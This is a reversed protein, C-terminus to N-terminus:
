DTRLDQTKWLNFRELHAEHEVQLKDKEGGDLLSYLVQHTQVFEIYLHKWVDFEAQARSRDGEKIVELIANGSATLQTVHGGYVKRKMGAQYQALPYDNSYGGYAFTNVCCGGIM